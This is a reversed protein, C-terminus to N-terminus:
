SRALNISSDTFTKQSASNSAMSAFAAKDSNGGGISLLTQVSPNKLQVTKTFQSFQANNSSSVTIRYTQPDLDAFACFLHTFLTSDIDSVALGCAHTHPKPGGAAQVTTVLPHSKIACFEAYLNLVENM